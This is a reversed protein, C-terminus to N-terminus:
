STYKYKKHTNRKTITPTTSHSFILSSLSQWRHICNTTMYEEKCLCDICYNDEFNHVRCSQTIYRYERYYEISIKCKRCQLDSNPLCCNGM